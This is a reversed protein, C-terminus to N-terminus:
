EWNGANNNNTTLNGIRLGPYRGERDATETLNAISNEDLGDLYQHYHAGCEMLAQQKGSGKIEVTAALEFQENQSFPIRTLSDALLGEQILTKFQGAYVGHQKRYTEEALRIKVLREKVVQERMARQEDFRIPKYISLFCVALLALVCFTLIYNNNIKLKM